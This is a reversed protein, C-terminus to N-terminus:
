DRPIMKGFKIVHGGTNRLLSLSVKRWDRPSIINSHKAIENMFKRCNEESNWYYKSFRPIHSFWERKWKTEIKCLLDLFFTGKYISQLCDM